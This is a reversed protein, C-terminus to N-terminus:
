KRPEGTPVEALQDHTQSDDLLVCEFKGSHTGVDPAPDQPDDICEWPEHRQGAGYETQGGGAMAPDSIQHGFCEYNVFRKNAM